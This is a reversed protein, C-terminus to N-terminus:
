RDDLIPTLRDYLFQTINLLFKFATERREQISAKAEPHPVAAPGGIGADSVDVDADYEKGGAASPTANSHTGVSARSKIDDVPVKALAAISDMM